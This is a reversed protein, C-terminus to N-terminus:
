FFINQEEKTHFVQDREGPACPTSERPNRSYKYMLSLIHCAFPSFHEALPKM